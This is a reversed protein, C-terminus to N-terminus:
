SVKNITGRKKIGEYKGALRLRRRKDHIHIKERGLEYAIQADTYGKAELDLMIQVEEDRWPLGIRHDSIEIGKASLRDRRTEVSKVSRKLQEAIEEYSCGNKRMSVLKADEESTWYRYKKKLHNHFDKKRESEVWEPEPILSKPEIKSFNLEDKHQEAFEWFDQVSILHMRKEFRVARKVSKLMGTKIWRTVTDHHVKILRSLACATIRGSEVKMNQIDMRQLKSEVAKATRENGFKESIRKALTSFMMMGAHQELFEVEEPTWHKGKM